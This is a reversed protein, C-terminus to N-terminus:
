GTAPFARGNTGARVFAAEDVIEGDHFLRVAPSSQSVVVALADTARTLSAAALHRSGLGHRVRVGRTSVDLCRAASLVVGDAAVVFAGDLQALERVTGRMSPDLINKAAPPHGALPDLILPHSRELVEGEDGVVFTTGIRKGERGHEALDSAVRLVARLVHPDINTSLHAPCPLPHPPLPSRDATAGPHHESM